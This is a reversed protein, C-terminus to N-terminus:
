PGLPDEQTFYGIVNVVMTVLPSVDFEDLRCFRKSKNSAVADDLDSLSWDDIRFPLSRMM